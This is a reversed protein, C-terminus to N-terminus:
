ETKKRTETPEGRPRPGRRQRKGHEAHGQGQRQQEPQQEVVGAAQVATDLIRARDAHEQFGIEFGIGHLRQRLAQACTRIDGRDFELRRFLTQLFEAALRAKGICELNQVVIGQRRHQNDTRAGVRRIGRRRQDGFELV